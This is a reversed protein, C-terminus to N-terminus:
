NRRLRFFRPGALMGVSVVHNAGSISVANTVANWATGSVSASQELVYGAANTPWSLSVHQAGSKAIALPPGSIDYVLNDLGWWDQVQFSTRGGVMAVLGIGAPSSFEWSDFGTSTSDSLATGLYNNQPDFVHVQVYGDDQVFLSGVRRAPPDFRLDIEYGGSPNAGSAALFNPGSAAPASASTRCEFPAFSSFTVGWAAFQNSIATGAALPTGNPLTEFNIVIPAAVTGAAGGGFFLTLIAVCAFRQGLFRM